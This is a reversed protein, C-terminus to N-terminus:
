RIRAGGSSAIRFHTEPTVPTSDDLTKVGHGHARILPDCAGIAAAPLLLPLVSKGRNM